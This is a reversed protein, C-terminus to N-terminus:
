LESTTELQLLHVAIRRELEIITPAILREIYVGDSSVLFITPRDNWLSAQTNGAVIEAHLLYALAPPYHSSPELVTTSPQNYRSTQLVETPSGPSKEDRNDVLPLLIFQVTFPYISAIHELMDYYFKAMTPFAVPVVAYATVYGEYDELPLPHNRKYPQVDLEFFAQPDEHVEAM